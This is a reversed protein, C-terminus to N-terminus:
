RPSPQPLGPWVMASLWGGRSNGGTLCDALAGNVRRLAVWWQAPSLDDYVRDDSPDGEFPWERIVCAMMENLLTIDGSTQAQSWMRFHRMQWDDVVIRWATPQNFYPM